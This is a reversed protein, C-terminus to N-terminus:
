IGPITVLMWLIIPLSANRICDNQRCILSSFSIHVEKYKGAKYLKEAQDYFDLAKKHNDSSSSSEVASVISIIGIQLYSLLYCSASNIVIEIGYDYILIVTCLNNIDFETVTKEM